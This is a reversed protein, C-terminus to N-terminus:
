APAPEEEAPQPQGPRTADGAALRGSLSNPHAALIRVPAVTGALSAADGPLHVPQLWPSRGAVQGPHRGPGTFLVPISMGVRSRNFADQQERLLAQLEQLRQDKEAEAVQHPAAIPKSTQTKFSGANAQAAMRTPATQAPVALPKCTTTVSSAASAAAVGQKLAAVRKYTQSAFLGVTAQVVAASPAAIPKATLTKFLAM